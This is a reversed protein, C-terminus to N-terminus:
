TGNRRPAFATAYRSRAGERGARAERRSTTAFALMDRSHVRGRAVANSRAVSFAGSLDGM